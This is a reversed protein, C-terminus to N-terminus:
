RNEFLFTPAGPVAADKMGAATGDKPEEEGREVKVVLVEECKRVTQKLGPIMEHLVRLEDFPLRRENLIADASEGSEFRRKLAQVFPVAKKVDMGMGRTTSVEKIVRKFDPDPGAARVM